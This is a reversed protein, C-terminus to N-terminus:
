RKSSEQPNMDREFYEDITQPTHQELWAAMAEEEALIEECIRKTESDGVKEATAILAKYSAIEMHEFAYSAICGKVIEDSSFVGGIAQAMAAMKGTADKTFSTSKDYREICSEVRKSQSRTEDLHQEIRQRIQPYNEIRSAQSKLMQEAQQEMAHADRLWELLHKEVTEM